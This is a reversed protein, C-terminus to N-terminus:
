SFLLLISILMTHVGAMSFSFILGCLYKWFVLEQYKIQVLLLLLLLNSMSLYYIKCTLCSVILNKLLIEMITLLINLNSVCVFVCKLSKM